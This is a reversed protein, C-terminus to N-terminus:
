PAFEWSQGGSDAVFVYGNADVAIGKLYVPSATLGGVYVAALQIGSPSYEYFYGNGSDTVFVNGSADV